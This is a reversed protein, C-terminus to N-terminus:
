GQEDTSGLREASQEVADRELNEPEGNRYGISTNKQAVSYITAFQKTTVLENM